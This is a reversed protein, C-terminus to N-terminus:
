RGAGDIHRSGNAPFSVGPLERGRVEPVRGLCATLVISEPGALCPGIVLRAVRDLKEVYGTIKRVLYLRPSQFQVCRTWPLSSDMVTISHQHM